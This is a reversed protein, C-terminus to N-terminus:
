DPRYVGTGPDYRLKRLREPPTREAVRSLRAAELEANIRRTERIAFRAIAAGGFAAAAFLVLPPM